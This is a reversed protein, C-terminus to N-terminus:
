PLTLRPHTRRREENLITMAQTAQPVQLRDPHVDKAVATYASRLTHRSIPLSHSIIASETRTGRLRLVELPWDDRQEERSEIVRCCEVTERHQRRYTILRQPWWPVTGALSKSLQVWHAAGVSVDAYLTKSALQVDNNVDPTLCDAIYAVLEEAIDVLSPRIACVAAM